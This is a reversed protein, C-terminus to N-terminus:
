REYDYFGKKLTIIQNSLSQKIVELIRKSTGEQEYPNNCYKIEERFQDSLGLRIAELIDKTNDRCNIVSQPMVRGKQRDGINVTPIGFSPTEIIGSSSNGIVMCSYRMASLYNQQGMSVFAKCRGSHKEVYEDIMQNIVRGDTDANAKTFIINLQKEDELAALLNSFQEKATAKELTVPHFTVLAVPKDFKFNIKDELQEKTYLEINKINEIGIAGVNFVREPHEGLQIVRNRYIETSTFHLYSMKTISHRIADDVAGETKEGGHIHAIPIRSIMAAIVAALTEYRDGLVVIIDPKQRMYAESFSMIGLGISKNVGITTDSSLLTEIKEAIPYGDEEIQKYTLGFEPSLHMGTVFLQLELADDKIIKNILPKLLGYEARTGTIIGIKKIM